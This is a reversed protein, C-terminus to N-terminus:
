RRFKKKAGEKMKEMYAEIDEPLVPELIVVTRNEPTLYKRAVEKIDEIKVGKLREMWTNVAEPKDLIAFNGVMMGKGVVSQMRFVFSSLARNLAKELEGEGISDGVSEIEDYIMSEVDQPSVGERLSTFIYFLGPDISRDTWSSISSAANEEYVVRRYLRSSKGQGLIISLLYLPPYEPSKFEPIHYAIALLTVFGEKRVVVRREGLQKPEVTRVPEPEPGRPIEGFYKEALKFAEKPNVDGAIILIANNPAYYKRYYEKIDDLTLSSLDSMWGVVPNRYPHAMYAFAGLHEFLIGWPSNETRWRREEKVVDRESEFERFVINVMRDSELDLAIELKSSPLVSWYATKDESTFANDTGGHRQIIISYEESGIRETGKFMMHELLHSIGTIGEHENRSGVKYWVQVSVLPSSHDEVVVVTLGNDLTRKEIPLSLSFSISYTVLLIGCFKLIKMEMEEKLSFRSSNYAKSDSTVLFLILIAMWTMGM